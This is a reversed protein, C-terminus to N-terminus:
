CTCNALRQVFGFLRANLIICFKAFGQSWLSCQRLEGNKAIVVISCRGLRDGIGRLPWREEKSEAEAEDLEM